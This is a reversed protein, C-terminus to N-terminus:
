VHPNTHKQTHTVEIKSHEFRLRCYSCGGFFSTCIQHSQHVKPYRNYHPLNLFLSITFLRINPVSSMRIPYPRVHVTRKSKMVSKSETLEETCDIHLPFYFFLIGYTMRELTIQKGKRGSWREIDEWFVKPEGEEGETRIRRVRPESRIVTVKM